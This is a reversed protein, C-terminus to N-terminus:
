AIQPAVTTASEACNEDHTVSSPSGCYIPVANVICIHMPKKNVLTEISSIGFIPSQRYANMIRAGPGNNPTIEINRNLCNGSAILIACPLRYCPNALNSNVKIELLDM